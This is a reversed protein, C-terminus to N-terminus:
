LAKKLFEDKSIEKKEGGEKEEEDFLGLKKDEEQAKKMANYQKRNEARKEAAIAKIKETNDKEAEKEPDARRAKEIADALVKRHMFYQRQDEYYQKKEAM